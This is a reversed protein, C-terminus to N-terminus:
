HAGDGSEPPAFMLPLDLATNRPGGPKPFRLSKLTNQMCTTLSEPLGTDNRPEVVVVKGEPSLVLHLQVQGIPAKGGQAATYEDNCRKLAPQGQAVFMDNLQESFQPNEAIEEPESPTSASAPESYEPPPGQKTPASLSAGCDSLAILTTFSYALRLSVVRLETVSAVSALSNRHAIAGLM